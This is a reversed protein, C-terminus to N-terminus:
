LIPSSHSRTHLYLLSRLRSTVSSLLHLTLDARSTYNLPLHPQLSLPRGLFKFSNVQERSSRGISSPAGPAYLPPIRSLRDYIQKKELLPTCILYLNDQVAGGLGLEKIPM